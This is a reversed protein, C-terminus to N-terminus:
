SAPPDVYAPIEVVKAVQQVNGNVIHQEPVDLGLLKCRRESVRIIMEMIRVDGDRSMQTINVRKWGNVIPVQIIKDGQQRIRNSMTERRVVLNEKSRHWAEWLERNAHDLLALEQSRLYNSDEDTKAKWGERITKIVM